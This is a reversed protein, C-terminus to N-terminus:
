RVSPATRALAIPLDPHEFGFIKLRQTATGRHGATGKVVASVDYDGTPLSQWEVWHTRAAEDGDLTFESSRYFNPSDAVISLTRNEANPEVSVM